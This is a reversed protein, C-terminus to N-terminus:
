PVIVDLVKTSVVHNMLEATDFYTPKLRRESTLRAQDVYYPSDPNESQGPKLPQAGLQLLVVDM